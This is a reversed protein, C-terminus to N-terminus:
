KYVLRGVPVVRTITAACILPFGNQVVYSKAIHELRDRIESQTRRMLIAIHLVSKKQIQKMLWKDQEDCWPEGTNSAITYLISAETTNLICAINPINQVNVHQLIRAKISENTRGMTSSIHNLDARQGIFVDLTKDEDVTWRSMHRAPKPM